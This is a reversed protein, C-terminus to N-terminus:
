QSEKIHSRSEQVTMIGQETERKIQFLNGAADYSYFTAYNNNDLEAKLKYNQPDYVYSKMNGDFPHIRLDDLYVIGTTRTTLPEVRLWLVSGAPLSGPTQYNEDELRVWGDIQKSKITNITYWITPAVTATGYGVKVGWGQSTMYSQLGNTGDIPMTKLWDTSLWADIVYKKNPQLQMDLQPIQTAATSVKMSMKGSHARSNVFSINPFTYNVATANPIYIYGTWCRAGGGYQFDPIVDGAPNSFQLVVANTNATSGVLLSGSAMTVTPSTSIINEYPWGDGGAEAQIVVNGLSGGNPLYQALFANYDMNISATNGNGFAIPVKQYNTSTFNTMDNVMTFNGTTRQPMTVNTNGAYEEFGEFAGEGFSTNSAVAVPLKGDYGYLAASFNKLIDMNESEYGYPSYATITNTLRWKPFCQPFYPNYWNFMPMSDFIGDRMLNVKTLTNSGDTLKDDVMTLAQKRDTVYTYTQSPRWVGVAGTTYPNLIATLDQSGRYQIFDQPWTDEFKVSTASLVKNITSDANNSSCSKSTEPVFNITM